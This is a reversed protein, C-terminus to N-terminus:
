KKLWSLKNKIYSWVPNVGDISGDARKISKIELSNIVMRRAEGTNKANVHATYVRGGIAYHIM